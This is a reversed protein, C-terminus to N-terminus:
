FLFKPKDIAIPSIMRCVYRLHWSNNYRYMNILVPFRDGDSDEVIVSVELATVEQDSQSLENFRPDQYFTYSCDSLHGTYLEFENPDLKDNLIGFTSSFPVTAVAIRMGDPETSFGSIRYSSEEWVKDLLDFSGVAGIMEFESLRDKPVNAPIVCESDKVYKKYADAKMGSMRAVVLSIKEVAEDKGEIDDSLLPGYILKLAAIDIMSPNMELTEYHKLAQLHAARWASRDDSAFKKAKIPAIDRVTTGDKLRIEEGTTYRFIAVSAVAVVGLVSFAVIHKNKM